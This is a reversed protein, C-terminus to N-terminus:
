HVNFWKWGLFAVHVQGLINGYAVFSSCITDWRVAEKGSLLVRRWINTTDMNRQQSINVSCLIRILFIHIQLAALKLYPDLCFLTIAQENFCLLSFPILNPSPIRCLKLLRKNVQIITYSLFRKLCELRVYYNVISMSHSHHLLCIFMCVHAHFLFLSPKLSLSDCVFSDCCFYFSIEPNSLITTIGPNARKVRLLEWSYVLVYKVQHVPSYAVDYINRTLCFM